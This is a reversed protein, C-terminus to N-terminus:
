PNLGRKWQRYTITSGAYSYRDVTKEKSTLLFVVGHIGLETDPDIEEVADVPEGTSHFVLEAKEKSDALLVGVPEGGSCSAYGIYIKKKAM